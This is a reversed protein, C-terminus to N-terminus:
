FNSCFSFQKCFKVIIKKPSSFSPLLKTFSAKSDVNLSAKFRRCNLLCRRSALKFMLFGYLHLFLPFLDVNGVSTSPYEFLLIKNKYQSSKYVYLFAHALINHSKRHIQTHTYATTTRNLKIDCVCTSSQYIEKKNTDMSPIHSSGYFKMTTHQRDWEKLHHQVHICNRNKKQTTTHESSPFFPFILNEVLMKTHLRVSKSLSGMHVIIISSSSNARGCKEKYFELKRLIGKM